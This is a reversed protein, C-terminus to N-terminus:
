EIHKKGIHKDKKKDTQREKDLETMWPLMQVENTKLCMKISHHIQVWTEGTYVAIKITKTVSEWHVWTHQKDQLLDNCEMLL